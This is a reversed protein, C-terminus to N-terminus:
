ALARWSAELCDGLRAVDAPSLAANLTIRVRARGEPVSPPRIPQALIGQARLAHGLELARASSGVVIPVIPGFSGPVAAIGAGKLRKRLAEAHGALAARAPEAARVRAVHVRAEACLRPSPATSFVFSRAANWLFTRLVRSGAAFAGQVGVAKGLTGVLVDPAVDAQQCRGAGELGFVGLAHAEDVVLFAAHRHCIARLAALDPGDGDMSFYSETVVWRPGAPAALLASELAALDLHPVVVTSAGSLRCGDILSAHNLSDSFVTGGRALAGLCGVNAAFGSSFLLAAPAGVWVALDAELAEHEPRSGQILRSAGAGWAATERSVSGAALGLYDNSTVDLLGQGLAHAQGEVRSRAQADDPDRLLGRAELTGLEQSLHEDLTM